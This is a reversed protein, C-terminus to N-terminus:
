TKSGAVALIPRGTKQSIEKAQELDTEAYAFSYMSVSLIAACGITAARMAYEFCRGSNMPEIDGTILEIHQEGLRM